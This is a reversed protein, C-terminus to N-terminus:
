ESVSIKARDIEQEILDALGEADPLEYGIAEEIADIASKSDLSITICKDYGIELEAENVIEDFDVNALGSSIDSEFAALVADALRRIIDRSLETTPKPEPISALVEAKQQELLNLVDEKSFISSICSQVTATTITTNEMNHTNKTNINNSNTLTFTQGINRNELLEPFNKEAPVSDTLLHANLPWFLINMQKEVFGPKTLEADIAPKTTKNTEYIWNVGSQILALESNPLYWLYRSTSGAKLKRTVLGKAWARRLLEAYKKNSEMPAHNNRDFGFCRKFLETESYFGPNATLFDVIDQQTNCTRFGRYYSHYVRRGM